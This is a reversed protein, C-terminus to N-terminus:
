RVRGGPCVGMALTDALTDKKLREWARPRNDTQSRGQLSPYEYVTGQLLRAQSAGCDIEMFVTASRYPWRAGKQPGDYEERLWIRPLGGLAASVRRTSRVVDGDRELFTWDTTSTGISPPTATPPPRTAPPRAPQAQGPPTAAPPWNALPSDPRLYSPPSAQARPASPWNSLPPRGSSSQAPPREERPRYAPPTAYVTPPQPPASRASAQPPADPEIWRDGCVRRAIRAAMSDARLKSWESAPGGRTTDGREGPETFFTSELIRAEAFACNLEMLSLASRIGIRAGQAENFEQRFWARPSLDQTWDRRLFTDAGDSHGLYYWGPEAAAAPGAFLLAAVIAALRKM